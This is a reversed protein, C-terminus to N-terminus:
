DQQLDRFMENFNVSFDPDGVTVIREPVEQLAAPQGGFEYVRGEAPDVAWIYKVGFHRYEELKELMASMRDDPSLIEIVILPPQTLVREKRYPRLMVCVDPIRYRLRNAEALVQVRQETFTCIPFQKERAQFYSALLAQLRSHDHEGVNREVLQGDVYERDAEYSTALYEEASIGTATSMRRNRWRGYNGNQVRNRREGAFGKNETYGYATEIAM